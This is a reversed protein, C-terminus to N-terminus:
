LALTSKWTGIDDEYERYLEVHAYDSWINISYRGYGCEVEPDPDYYDNFMAERNCNCSFIGESWIYDCFKNDTLNWSGKYKVIRVLGTENERIYVVLNIDKYEDM